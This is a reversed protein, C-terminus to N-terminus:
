AELSYRLYSKLNAIAAGAAGRVLNHVMVVLGLVSSADGRRLHGVHVRMDDHRLDLQAQPHYKNQHLVFLDPHQENWSRYAEKAAELSVDEEFCLHLTMTHGFRIPVRHVHATLAFSAAKTSTGLIKKTEETIKEAEEEIHPITNDIMDYASIGPYGAGSISQLTVVSLHRLQALSMLPALALAVGTTSCNPNAIIKGQTAQQEILSLHSENIEPILLPVQSRMRHASANSFVDKGRRALEPEIEVAAESPLCSIVYRAELSDVSSLKLRSVEEPLASLPERWLCADGFRHGVRAESAVVEAVRLDTDRSLLAIVKQGVIGTAGLVALDIM